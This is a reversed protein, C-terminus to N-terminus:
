RGEVAARQVGCAASCAACWVGCSVRRQVFLSLNTGQLSSAASHTSTIPVSSKAVAISSLTAPM